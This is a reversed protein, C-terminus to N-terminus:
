TERGELLNAFRVWPFRDAGAERAAAVIEARLKADPGLMRKPQEVAAPAAQEVARGYAAVMVSQVAVPADGSLEATAVSAVPPENLETGLDSWLGSPLGSGRWMYVRSLLERLRGARAREAALESEAARLRAVEAMDWYGDPLLADLVEARLQPNATLAAIVHEPGACGLPDFTRDGASMGKLMLRMTWGDGFSFEIPGKAGDDSATTM